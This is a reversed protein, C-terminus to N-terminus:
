IVIFNAAVLSVVAVLVNAASLAAIGHADFKNYPCGRADEFRLSCYMESSACLKGVTDAIRRM